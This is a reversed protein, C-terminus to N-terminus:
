GFKEFRCQHVVNYNLKQKRKITKIPISEGDGKIVSTEIPMSLNIKLGHM